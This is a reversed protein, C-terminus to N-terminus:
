MIEAIKITLKKPKKSALWALFGSGTTPNIVFYRVFYVDHSIEAKNKTLLNFLVPQDAM